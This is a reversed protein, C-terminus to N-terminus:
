VAKSSSDAPVPVQRKISMTIAVLSVTDKMKNRWLAIKGGALVKMQKVEESIFCPPIWVKSIKYYKKNCKESSITWILSDYRVWGAEDDSTSHFSQAKFGPIGRRCLGGSICVGASPGNNFVTCIWHTGGMWTQGLFVVLLYSATFVPSFSAPWFHFAEEHVSSLYLSASDVGPGGHMPM